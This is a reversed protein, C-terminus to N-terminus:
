QGIRKWFSATIDDLEAMVGALGLLVGIQTVGHHGVMPSGHHWVSHTHEVITHQREPDWTLTVVCERWRDAPHPQQM